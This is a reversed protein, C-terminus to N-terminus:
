ITDEDVNEKLESSYDRLESLVYMAIGEQWDLTGALKYKPNNLINEVVVSVSTLIYYFMTNAGLFTLTAKDFVLYDGLLSKGRKEVKNNADKVQMLFKYLFSTEKVIKLIDAEVDSKPDFVKMQPSLLYSLWRAFQITEDYAYRVKLSNKIGRYVHEIMLAKNEDFFGNFHLLYKKLEKLKYEPVNQRIWQCYNSPGPFSKTDGAWSLTGAKKKLLKEIKETESM